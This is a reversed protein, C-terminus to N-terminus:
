QLHMHSAAVSRHRSTSSSQLAPLTDGVRAEVAAGGELAVVMEGVAMEAAEKSAGAVGDVAQAEAEVEPEAWAMEMAGVVEAEWAGVAPGQGLLEETVEETAGMVPALTVGM